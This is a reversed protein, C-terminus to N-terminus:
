PLGVMSEQFLEFIKELIINLKEMKDEVKINLVERYNM